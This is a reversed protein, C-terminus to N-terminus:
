PHNPSSTPISPIEEQHAPGTGDGQAQPNQPPNQNDHNMSPTNRVDRNYRQAQYGPQQNTPRPSTAYAVSITLAFAISVSAVSSTLGAPSLKQPKRHNM